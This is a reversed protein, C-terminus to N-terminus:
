ARVLDPMRAASASEPFVHKELPRAAIKMHDHLVSKFVSRLDISPYLDRDEYLAKGKLGRWDHVVRGGKVAGGLLLMAGGTGHDTGRTGNTQVTRGFESMVVIVTNKWREGTLGDGLRALGDDLLGFQRALRGEATGQSAHTDWGSLELSIIRPGGDRNMMEAAVGCAQVFPKEGDEVPLANGPGGRRSQEWISGLLPDDAYLQDMVKLFTEDPAESISPIWSSVPADGRLLLPVLSGVAVADSEKDLFPLTRNLWGSRAKTENTGNALIDQADFHSRSRYPSATGTFALLEGKSQSKGCFALAPHLGFFGDIDIVGDPEAPGALALERRVAAYHPDAYPVVLSLGDAGGLLNVVVLSPGGSGPAAFAFNTQALSSLAVGGSLALFRRRDIHALGM